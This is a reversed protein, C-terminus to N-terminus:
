RPLESGAVRAKSFRSLNPKANISKLKFNERAALQVPKVKQTSTSRHYRCRFSGPHNTPSCMCLNKKPEEQDSKGQMMNKVDVAKRNGVRARNVQSAVGKIKNM